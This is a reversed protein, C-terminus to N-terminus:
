ERAAGPPLVGYDRSESAARARVRQRRAGPQRRGGREDARELATQESVHHLMRHIVQAVAHQSGVPLQFQTAVCQQLFGLM